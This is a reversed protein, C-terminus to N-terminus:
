PCNGSALIFPWINVLATEGSPFYWRAIKSAICDELGPNGVTGVLSVDGVRGNPYVTFTVEVRGCIDPYIELAELYCANIEHRKSEVYGRVARKDDEERDDEAPPIQHEIVQQNSGGGEAGEPGIGFPDLTVHHGTAPLRLGDVLQLACARLERTPSSRYQPAFTAVKGHADVEAYWPTLAPSQAEDTAEGLAETCAIQELHRPLFRALVIQAAEEASLHRGPVVPPLPPGVSLTVEAILMREVTPYELRRLEGEICDLVAQEALARQQEGGDGEWGSVYVGFDNRFPMRDIDLGDPHLVVRVMTTARMVGSGALLGADCSELSGLAGDLLRGFELTQSPTAKSYLLVVDSPDLSMRPASVVLNEFATPRDPAAPPPVDVKGRALMTLRFQRGALSPPAPPLADAKWKGSTAGLQIDLWDGARTSFAEPRISIPEIGAWTGDENATLAFEARLRYEGHFYATPLEGLLAGALAKRESEQLNEAPPLPAGDLPVVGTLDAWAQEGQPVTGIRLTLGGSWPLPPLEVVQGRAAALAADRAPGALPGDQERAGMWNLAGDADVSGDLLWSRQSTVSRSAVAAAAVPALHQELAWRALPVDEGDLEVGLVIGSLSSSPTRTRLAVSLFLVTVLLLGLALAIRGAGVKRAVPAAPGPTSPQPLTPLEGHEQHVYYWELFDLLAIQAVQVHTATLSSEQFHSGPSANTQITRVHIGISRPIVGRALLPGIMRELTPEGKGWTIGHDACLAHLVKETIYRMKNLASHDDQDVLARLTALDASLYAVQEELRQIRQDTNSLRYSDAKTGEAGGM